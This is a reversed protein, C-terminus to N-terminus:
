QEFSCTASSYRTPILGGLPTNSYPGGPVPVNRRAERGWPPDTRDRLYAPRSTSKTAPGLFSLILHQHTPLVSSARATAAVSLVLKRFTTEDATLGKEAKKMDDGGIGEQKSRTDCGEIQAEDQVGLRNGSGRDCKESSVVDERDDGECRWMRAAVKRADREARRESVLLNDVFVNTFGGSHNSFHKGICFFMFWTNNEHIFNISNSSPPKTLTSRGISFNLPSQHLHTTKEKHGEEREKKWRREKGESGMANKV